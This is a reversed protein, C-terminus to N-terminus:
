QQEGYIITVVGRSYPGADCGYAHHIEVTVDHSESALFESAGFEGMYYFQGTGQSVIIEGDVQFSGGCYRGISGQYAWTKEYYTYTTDLVQFTDTGVGQLDEVILLLDSANPYRFDYYTVDPNPLALNSAIINLM